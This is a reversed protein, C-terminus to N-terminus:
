DNQNQKIFRVLKDPDSFTRLVHLYKTGGIVNNEEVQKEIDIQLLDRPLGDDGIQKIYDFKIFYEEGM